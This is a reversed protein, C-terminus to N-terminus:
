SKLYQSSNTCSLIYDYAVSWSQFKNRNFSNEVFSMQWWYNVITTIVWVVHCKLESFFMWHMNFPLIKYAYSKKHMHLHWLNKIIDLHTWAINKEQIFRTFKLFSSSVSRLCYNTIRLRIILSNLFPSVNALMRLIWPPYM